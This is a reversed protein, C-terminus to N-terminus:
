MALLANSTESYIGTFHTARTQQKESPKKQVSGEVPFDTIM